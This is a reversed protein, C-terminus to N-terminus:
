AFRWMAYVLNCGDAARLKLGFQQRVAGSRLPATEATPGQYTFRAEIAQKTPASLVARLKDTAISLRGEPLPQLAGETVCLRGPAVPVLGPPSDGAQAPAASGLAAALALGRWAIRSRLRPMSPRRPQRM